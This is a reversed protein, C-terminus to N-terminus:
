LDVEIEITQEISTSKNTKPAVNGGPPALAEENVLNRSWVYRCVATPLAGRSSHNARRLSTHCVVSEVSLCRYWPSIRVWFRLLRASASRLRLGRPWHSRCLHYRRWIISSLLRFNPSNIWIIDSKCQTQASHSYQAQIRLVKLGQQFVLYTSSCPLLPSYVGPPHQSVIRHLNRLLKPPAWHCPLTSMRNIFNM